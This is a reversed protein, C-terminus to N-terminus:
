KRGRAQYVKGIFEAKQDNLSSCQKNTEILYLIYENADGFTKGEILKIEPCKEFMETPIVLLDGQSVIQDEQCGALALALPLMLIAITKNM